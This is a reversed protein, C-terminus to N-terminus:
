GTGLRPRRLLGRCSGNRGCEKRDGKKVTVHRTARVLTLDETSFTRLRVTGRAPLTSPDINRAIAPTFLLLIPFFMLSKCSPLRPSRLSLGAYV